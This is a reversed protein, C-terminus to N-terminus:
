QFKWHFKQDDLLKALKKNIPDFFKYLIRKTDNRMQLEPDGRYDFTAQVNKCNKDNVITFPRKLVDMGLDLFDSLNQTAGRYNEKIEETTMFHFQERPIVALWRRIYYYYFGVELRVRGCQSSGYAVPGTIPPYLVEFCADVPKFRTCLEYFKIKELVRYHFDDPSQVQVSRNLSKCHASTSFWFASYLMTVPDRLVVIYKARPLILSLVSPVLCYNELTENPSYRPWQFITNPTADIPVTFSNNGISRPLFDVLYRAVDGLDHPKKHHFAPGGSVWFHPEKEPQTLLFKWKKYQYLRQILCYVFSSGCKPFGAVFLSPLCLGPSHVKGAYGYYMTHQIEPALLNGHFSFPHQGIHGEVNRMYCVNMNFQSKWCPMKSHNASFNVSVIERMLLLLRAANKRATATFNKKEFYETLEAAELCKRLNLDVLQLEHAHEDGPREVPFNSVNTLTCPTRSYLLDPKKFKFEATQNYKFTKQSIQQWQPQKSGQVASTAVKSNSLRNGPIRIVHHVRETLPKDSAKSLEQGNHMTQPNQTQTVAASGVRNTSIKGTKQSAPAKSLEKGITHPNQTAVTQTAAESNVRNNPIQKEAVPKAPVRVLQVTQPNQTDITQTVAESSARYTSKHDLQISKHNMQEESEPHIETTSDVSQQRKSGELELNHSELLGRAWEPHLPFNPVSVKAKHSPEEPSIGVLPKETASDVPPKKSDNQNLTNSAQLDHARQEEYKMETASDAPPLEEQKESVQLHHASPEQPSIELPKEMSHSDVPHQNLGELKVADNVSLDPEHHENELSPSISLPTETTSDLAPENSGGKHDSVQLGDARQDIPKERAHSDGPQRELKLGDNALPDPERERELFTIHAAKEVQEETSIPEILYDRKLINNVALDHHNGEELSSQVVKEQAFTRQEKAKEVSKNEVSPINRKNELSHERESLDERGSHNPYIKVVLLSRDHGLWRGGRVMLVLREQEGLNLFVPVLSVATVAVVLFFVRRAFM